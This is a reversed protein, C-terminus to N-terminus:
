MSFSDTICLQILLFKGELHRTHASLAEHLFVFKETYCNKVNTNAGIQWFVRFWLDQMCHWLSRLCTKTRRLPPSDCQMQCRRESACDLKCDPKWHLFFHCCAAHSLDDFWVWMEETGYTPIKERWCWICEVFIQSKLFYILYIMGVDVSYLVATIVCM